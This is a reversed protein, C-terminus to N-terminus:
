VFYLLLEGLFRRVTTCSDCDTGSCPALFLYKSTGGARSVWPRSDLSDDPFSHTPRCTGVVSGRVQLGPDSTAGYQTPGFSRRVFGSGREVVM